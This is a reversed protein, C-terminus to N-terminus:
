YSVFRNIKAKNRLDELFKQAKENLKQQQLQNKVNTRQTKEDQGQPLSEKNSAIYADVEKDSIATVGIMKEIMKQLKIQEVLQDKTMGQLQLVQDLKQGQKALNANIKKLEGDIDSQSVIVKRKRAEQTILTKTILSDLAQKGGQKELESIVSVRSIPQGNVTAAIILNRFLYLVAVFILIGLFTLFYSKRVRLAGSGTINQPTDHMDEKSVPSAVAATRTRSSKQIKATGKQTSKVAM